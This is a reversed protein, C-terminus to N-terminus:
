ETVVSHRVESAPPWETAVSAHMESARTQPTQLDPLENSSDASHCDYSRLSEHLDNTYRDSNTFRRM